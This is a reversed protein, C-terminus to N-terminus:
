LWLVAVACGCCLVCRHALLAVLVETKAQAEARIRSGSNIPDFLHRYFSTRQNLVREPGDATALSLGQSAGAAVNHQSQKTKFDSEGNSITVPVV